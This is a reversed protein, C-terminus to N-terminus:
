EAAFDPMASSNRLYRADVTGFWQRAFQHRALTLDLATLYLQEKQRQYDRNQATAIAVAQALSIAGSPPVAKEVRLDDPSAPVNSDGVIYNSRTGFSDHWKEDIIQYVEKDAEAKYREPSCGAVFAVLVGAGFLRCLWLRFRHFMFETEEVQEISEKSMDLVTHLVACQAAIM